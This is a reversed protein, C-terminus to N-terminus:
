TRSAAHPVEIGPLDHQPQQAARSTAHSLGAILESFVPSIVLNGYPSLHDGDFYLPRGSRLASCRPGECLHEAPDWLQVTPLIRVLERMAAVVPARYHEQASRDETLGAACDPNARNFWDVCQFPHARFIPKPLELVIRLGADALPRLWRIADDAAAAVSRREVESLEYTGDSAIERTKGGLEILRPLRLSSLFVIDGPRARRLLEAQADRAADHCPANRVNSMPALMDVYPCGPVNIATVTRAQEAALQELMPSYAVVHSDGVAYLSPRAESIAACHSVDFETVAQQYQGLPSKRVVPECLRRSAMEKALLGGGPYWDAPRRATDTLGLVPQNAQMWAGLGWGVAVIGVLLTIRASPAWSSLTRSYRIPNEIYRFSAAALGVSLAVALLNFPWQTLGTTWRALVYVPWHWLYLAYSRHGIWLAAPHSLAAPIRGSRAVGPLGIVLMTGVVAVFSRLYPYAQPHPWAMALAIAAIGIPASMRHLSQIAVPVRTVQRGVLYLLVGAALEWFRYGLLYFVHRPGKTIGVYFCLLLSALALIGILVLMAHSPGRRVRAGLAVFLLVPVVLYFQEEVGLSWTHTFPNLEARPEFYNVVQRDLNWNSLGWFAWQGVSEAAQNFWAKPVFLVYLLTTALLMAVLAPILRALRRAYFRALFSGVTEHQHGALSATVVFGSIVFFVDVGVFGGPLLNADLHYVMVAVVAVARLGDVHAVYSPTNRPQM